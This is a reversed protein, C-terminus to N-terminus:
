FDSSQTFHVLTLGGETRTEATSEPVFRLLMGEPSTWIVYPLHLPVKLEFKDATWKKEALTVEEQGLYNLHGGLTSVFVPDEQSPEEVTVLQVPTLKGPIREARRTITSLSFASIPWLFGYANQMPLNLNVANNPDSAGSTCVLEAPRFDCSLPGSDPKWRLKRFEVVSLTRFDPSLRVSFRNNHREYKPSEYTREGEAELSGDPLRWLTWSEHFDFVDPAYTGIADDNGQVVQYEGRAVFTRSEKGQGAATAAIRTLEASAVPKRLSAQGNGMFLFLSAGAVVWRTRSIIAPLEM